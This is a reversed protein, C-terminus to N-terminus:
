EKFARNYIWGHLDIYSEGDGDNTLAFLLKRKAFIQKRGNNQWCFAGRLSKLPRRLILVM